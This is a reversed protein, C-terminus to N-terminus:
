RSRAGRPPKVLSGQREDRDVGMAIQRARDILYGAEDLSRLLMDTEDRRRGDEESAAGTVRTLRVRGLGPM